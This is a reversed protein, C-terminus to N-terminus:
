VQRLRMALTDPMADFGLRQYFARSNGESILAVWRLDDAALRDLLMSVIRSAIGRRRFPEAVFIDQLYADSARDSIARGMGVICGGARAAVFLHSGAVLRILRGADDGGEWWGAARYLASVQDIEAASPQVLCDLSVAEARSRDGADRGM